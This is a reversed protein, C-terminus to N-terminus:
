PGEHEPESLQAGKRCAQSCIDSGHPVRALRHCEHLKRMQRKTEIGAPRPYCVDSASCLGSLPRMQLLYPPSASFPLGSLVFNTVNHFTCHFLPCLLASPAASYSQVVSRERVLATAINWLNCIQGKTEFSFSTPFASFPRATWRAQLERPLPCGAKFRKESWQGGGKSCTSFLMQLWPTM